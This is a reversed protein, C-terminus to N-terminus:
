DFSPLADRIVRAVLQPQEVSPLHAVGRLRVLRANPARQALQEARRNVGDVDYECVAVVMPVQLQELLSWASVPEPSAAVEAHDNTLAVANMALVLDRPDGSVRGERQCPGDLWIRTELRNVTDLDDAQEAADIADHLERGLEAMWDLEPADGVAPAILVLGRVRDPRQLAADIAIRGGQSNGVLVVPDAAAHDCVDWLHLTHRYPTAAVPSDGFGPRDYALADVDLTEMLEFWSRRDAVGAHLLVVRPARGTRTAALRGAAVEIWVSEM